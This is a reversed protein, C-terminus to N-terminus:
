WFRNLTKNKALGTKFLLEFKQSTARTFKKSMKGKDDLFEPYINLFVVKNEKALKELESNVARIIDMKGQYKIFTDFEDNTPMISQIYM